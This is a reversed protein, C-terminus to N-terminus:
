LQETFIVLTVVMTRHGLGDVEKFLFCTEELFLMKIPKFAEKSAHRQEFQYWIRVSNM